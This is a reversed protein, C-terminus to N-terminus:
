LKHKSESEDSRDGFFRLPVDKKGEKRIKKQKTRTRKSDQVFMEAAASFALTSEVEKQSKSERKVQEVWM